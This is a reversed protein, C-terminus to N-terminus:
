AVKIKSMVNHGITVNQGIVIAIMFQGNHVICHEQKDHQQDKHIASSHHAKTQATKFKQASLKIHRKYILKANFSRIFSIICQTEFFNVVKHEGM